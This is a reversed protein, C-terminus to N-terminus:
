ADECREKLRKYAKSLNKKSIEKELQLLAQNVIQEQESLIKCALQALELYEQVIKLSKNFRDEPTLPILVRLKQINIEFQLFLPDLPSFFANKHPADRFGEMWAECRELLNELLRLASGLELNECKLHADFLEQHFDLSQAKFKRTTRLSILMKFCARLLFEKQKAESPGELPAFNKSFPKSFYRKCAKKFPMEVSGAIRVGGQTANITKIGKANAISQELFEKFLRWYWSSRVVGRGGYAKLPVNEKHEQAEDMDDVGYLYGEPHSTLDEAYALDQGILIINKIGLELALNYNANSVSPGMFLYGFAKLATHLIFHNDRACLLMYDRGNYQLYKLANPHALSKVIFLIDKDFDGFDNNFFEATFHTRELMFVFDPKIANEYLIKYASDAAFILAREQVEKLLPLQKTLSPGTSVIIASECLGKRKALLEQFTPRAIMQPLNLTFNRVGELVDIPMNGRLLIANKFAAALASNIRLIEQEFQAYYDSMLELFYLRAYILFDSALNELAGDKLGCPNFFLVKGLWLSFDFHHFLTHLLEVNREFVVIFKLKPNELLASFLLGNGFGYFYLVPYLAYKTRYRELM